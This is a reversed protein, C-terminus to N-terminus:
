VCLVQCLPYLMPLETKATMKQCKKIKKQKTTAINSRTCRGSRSFADPNKRFVHILTTRSVLFRLSTWMSNATLMPWSYDGLDHM